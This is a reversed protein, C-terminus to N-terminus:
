IYAADEPHLEVWRDRHDNMWHVTLIALDSCLPSRRFRRNCAACRLMM